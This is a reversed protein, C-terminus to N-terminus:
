RPAGLQCLAVALRAGLRANNEALAINVRVSEGGTAQEMAALLRPTLAKGHIGHAKADALVKGLAADLLADDMEHEAPVPNCILIGGQRLTHLRAHVVRALAAVDAVVHELPIGSTRTYFAPFEPTGFGVVAVGLTELREVTRRLDLIAKAGASVVAVPHTALARLDQSEDFTEEADRHVGGVGGTAFVDIGARHAVWMTSSVTTAHHGGTAVAFSLDREATKHVTPALCLQELAADDLGVRIRGDVVAIVAPVAGEARVAANLQAAVEMRRHAPMGHALLTSELAVVARHESKAQAVEDHLVLIDQM